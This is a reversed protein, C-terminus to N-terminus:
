GELTFLIPVVIWAAVIQGGCRASVFHWDKVTEM